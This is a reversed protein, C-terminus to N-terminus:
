LHMNQCVLFSSTSWLGCTLKTVINVQKPGSFMFAESADMTLSYEQLLDTKNKLEYILEAPTRIIGFPPLMCRLSLFSRIVKVRPLEFVSDNIVKPSSKRAWSM